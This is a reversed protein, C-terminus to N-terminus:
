PCDAPGVTCSVEGSGQGIPRFVFRNPPAWERPTIPEAAREGLACASVGHASTRDTWHTVPPPVQPCCVMRDM